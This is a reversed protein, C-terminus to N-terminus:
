AVGVVQTVVGAGLQKIHTVAVASDPDELSQGSLDYTIDLQGSGGLGERQLLSPRTNEDVYRLRSLDRHDVPLLARDDGLPGDILGGRIVRHRKIFGMVTQKYAAPAGRADEYEVCVRAFCNRLQFA